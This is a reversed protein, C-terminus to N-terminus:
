ALREIIADFYAEVLSTMRGIGERDKPHDYM